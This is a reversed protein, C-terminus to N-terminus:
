EGLISQRQFRSFPPRSGVDFNLTHGLRNAHPNTAGTVAALSRESDVLEAGVALMNTALLAGAVRRMLRRMIMLGLGGELSDERLLALLRGAGRALNLFGRKCKWRTGAALVKYAFFDLLSHTASAVTATRGERWVGRLALIAFVGPALLTRSFRIHCDKGM